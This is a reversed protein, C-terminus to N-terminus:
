GGMGVRNDKRSHERESEIKSEKDKEGEIQARVVISREKMASICGKMGDGSRQNEERGKRNKKVRDTSLGGNNTM